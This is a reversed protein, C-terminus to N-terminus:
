KQVAAKLKQGFIQLGQKISYQKLITENTIIKTPKNSEVFNTIVNVVNVYAIDFNHLDRSGFILNGWGM